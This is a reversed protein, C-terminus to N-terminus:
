AWRGELDNRSLATECAAVVAEVEVNEACRCGCPERRWCPVAHGADPRYVNENEPYGSFEPSIFGTFVIVSRTEVARALHMLGGEMGVFLRAGALVAGAARVDTRGRLDVDCPLPADGENGLQVVRFRERIWRAVAGWRDLLWQKNPTWYSAATSQICVAGRLGSWEALESRLPYFWPRLSTEDGESLQIGAYEATEVLLPKSPPWGHHANRVRGAIGARHLAWSLAWRNGVVQPLTRSERRVLQVDRRTEEHGTVVVDVDPSNLFLAYQQSQVAVPELAHRTRILRALASVFLADGVGRLGPTTFFFAV